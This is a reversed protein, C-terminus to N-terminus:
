EGSVVLSSVAGGRVMKSGRKREEKNKEGSKISNRVGKAKEESEDADLSHNGMGPESQVTQAQAPGLEQSPNLHILSCSAPSNTVAVSSM